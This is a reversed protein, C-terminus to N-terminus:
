SFQNCAKKILDAIATATEARREGDKGRHEGDDNPIDAVHVGKAALFTKATKYLSAEKDTQTARELRTTRNKANREQRRRLSSKANATVFINLDPLLFERNLEWAQDFPVGDLVQFVLSSAIYRDTIVVDNEERAPRITSEIHQARDDALRRALNIGSHSEEQTLDFAATPEKTHCVQLGAVTLMPTVIDLVSTKGSRKPGDAAVFVGTAVGM